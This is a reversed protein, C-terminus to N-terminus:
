HSQNTLDLLYEIVMDMSTHHGSKKSLEKSLKVLAKHTKASVQLSKFSKM